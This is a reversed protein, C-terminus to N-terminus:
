RGRELWDAIKDLGQKEAWGLNGNCRNCVLGRVKGTVHDHDIYLKRERGCLPCVGGYEAELAEVEAVTLGYRYACQARLAKEPNEWYRKRAYDRRAEPTRSARYARMRITNCARCFSTFYERGRRDHRLYFETEPKEEGCDRCTRM